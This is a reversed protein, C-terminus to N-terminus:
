GKKAKQPLIPGAPLAPTAFAEGLSGLERSASGGNKWARFGEPHDGLYAEPEIPVGWLIKM